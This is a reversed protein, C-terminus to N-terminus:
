QPITIQMGDYALSICEVEGEKLIGSAVYGDLVQQLVKCSSEHEMECHMGVGFVFRPRLALTLALMDDVCYHVPSSRNQSALCDVYLIDIKVLDQLFQMSDRPIISVDSIYVVCSGEPPPVGDEQQSKFVTGRGFVYAMSIYGHGHEVPFTYFPLEPEAAAVAGTAATATIPLHVRKPEGEDVYYFDLATSRRIGINRWGGEKEGNKAAATAKAAREELCASLQAAYEAPSSMAPGSEVSNRVIYDVSRQLTEMTTYTLYTPIFSDVVWEGTSTMHMTQMDRLDDLGAIADAHGHTLLLTDVVRINWRIMVKFYADRFTKGCDILVHAVPKGHIYNGPQDVTFHAHSTGSSKPAGEAAKVAQAAATSSASIVAKEELAPLDGRPLTLLVSINNRNNPGNPNAVADECACGRGIHGIVPIGTSVGSGVVTLTM